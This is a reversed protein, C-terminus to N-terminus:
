LADIQRDITSQALNGFQFRLHSLGPHSVRSFCLWEGGIKSQSGDEKRGTLKKDATAMGGGGSESGSRERGKLSRQRMRKEPILQPGLCSPQTTNQHAVNGSLLNLPPHCSSLPPSLPVCGPKKTDRTAPLSTLAAQTLLGRELQSRCRRFFTNCPDGTLLKPHFRRGFPVDINCAPSPSRQLGVRLCTRFEALSGTIVCSSIM